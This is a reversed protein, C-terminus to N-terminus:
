IGVVFYTSAATPTIPATTTNLFNVTLTNAASVRAGVIGLGAQETAQSQIHILMDTKLGAVTFDQAAVVPGTGVAAPSLTLTAVFRPTVSGVRLTMIRYNGKPPGEAKL